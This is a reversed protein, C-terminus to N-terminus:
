GLRSQIGLGNTTSDQGQNYSPCVMAIDSVLAQKTLINHSSHSAVSLRFQDLISHWEIDLTKIYVEDRDSITLSM